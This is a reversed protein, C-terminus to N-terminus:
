ENFAGLGLVALVVLVAAVLRDARDGWLPATWLTHFTAHALIPADGLLPSRIWWYNLWDALWFGHLAVPAAFACLLAVHWAFRHRTGVSIYYVFALVFFTIFLLPQGFWGVCGAAFVGLWVSSGPRYHYAILMGAGAVVANGSLI